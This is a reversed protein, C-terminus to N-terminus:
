PQKESYLYDSVVCLDELIEGDPMRTLTRTVEVPKSYYEPDELTM